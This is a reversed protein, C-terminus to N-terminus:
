FVSHNFFGTVCLITVLRRGWGLVAILPNQAARTHCWRRRSELSSVLSRQPTFTLTEAGQSSAQELSYFWFRRWM